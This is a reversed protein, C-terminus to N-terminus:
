QFLRQDQSLNLASPSSPMLPHSPQISDGICHVHIQAFQPITLSLSPQHAATWPTAFLQVHSVLQVVVTLRYEFIRLLIWSM